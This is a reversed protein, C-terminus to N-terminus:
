DVLLLRRRADVRAHQRELVRRLWSRRRPQVLCQWSKMDDDCGTAVVDSVGMKVESMEGVVLEFRM